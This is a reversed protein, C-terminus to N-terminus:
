FDHWTTGLFESSLDLNGKVCELISDSEIATFVSM